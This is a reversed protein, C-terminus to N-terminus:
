NFYCFKGGNIDAKVCSRCPGSGFLTDLETASDVNKCDQCFYCKLADTNQDSDFLVANEFM